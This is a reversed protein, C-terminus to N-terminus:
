MKKVGETVREVMDSSAHDGSGAGDQNKRRKCGAEQGPGKGGCGRRGPCGIRVPTAMTGPAPGMPCQAPGMPCSPPGMPCPPPGVPCGMQHPGMGPYQPRFHQDMCFPPPPPPHFPHGNGHHGYMGMMAARFRRKHGRCRPWGAGAFPQNVCCQAGEFSHEKGEDGSTDDSTEGSSWNGMVDCKGAHRRHWRAMFRCMWLFHERELGEPLTTEEMMELRVARPRKEALKVHWDQVFQQLFQDMDPTLFSPTVLKETSNAKDGKNKHLHKVMKRVYVRFEKPVKKWAKAHHCEDESDSSSLCGYRGGMKHHRGHKGHGHHKWHGHGHFGHGFGRPGTHFMPVDGENSDVLAHGHNKAFRSLFRCIWQYYVPLLGDPPPLLESGEEEGETDGSDELVEFAEMEEAEMAQSAGSLRKEQYHTLFDSLWQRFTPPAGEPGEEREPAMVLDDGKGTSFWSRVYTRVWRRFPAPVQRAVAFFEKDKEKEMKMMKKMWKKKKHGMMHGMKGWHMGPGMWNWPGRWRRGMMPYPHHTSQLNTQFTVRRATGEETQGEMGDEDAEESSDAAFIYLRLIGDTLQNLAHQLEEQTSFQVLDGDCDKWQLTFSGPKIAPFVSAVKDVLARFLDTDRGASTEVPFRRIEPEVEPLGERQLFAKVTLSRAM